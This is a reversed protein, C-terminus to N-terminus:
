PAFAKAKGKEFLKKYLWYPKPLTELQVEENEYGIRGVYQAEEDDAVMENCKFM